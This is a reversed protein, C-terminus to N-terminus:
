DAKSINSLAPPPSPMCNFFFFLLRVCKNLLYNYNQGFDLISYFTVWSLAIHNMDSAQFRILAAM